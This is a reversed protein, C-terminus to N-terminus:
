TEVLLVERLKLVQRLNLTRKGRHKLKGHCISFRLGWKIMWGRLVILNGCSTKMQVVEFLGGDGAFVGDLATPNNLLGGGLVLM